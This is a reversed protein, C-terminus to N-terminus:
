GSQSKLANSRRNWLAAALGGLIQGGLTFVLIGFMGQAAVWGSVGPMGLAIYNYSALGGLLVCLSWRVAERGGKIQSAIWYALWAGGLLLLLNLLWANFTPHGEPSVFIDPEETPIPTAPLPLTETLVPPVVTVAAGGTTTVDMRLAESLM